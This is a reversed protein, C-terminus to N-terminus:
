KLEKEIARITRCPYPINMDDYLFRDNHMNSCEVCFSEKDGFPKHLEVLVSLFDSIDLGKIKELLEARSM